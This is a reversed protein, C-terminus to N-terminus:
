DRVPHPPLVPQHRHSAHGTNVDWLGMRKPSVGPPSRGASSASSSSTHARPGAFQGGYLDSVYGKVRLEESLFRCACACVCVCM